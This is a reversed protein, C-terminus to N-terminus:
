WTKFSDDNSLGISVVGGDHQQDKPFVRQLPVPDFLSASSLSLSSGSSSTGRRGTWSPGEWVMLQEIDPVLIAQLTRAAEDMISTLGSDRRRHYQQNLDDPLSACQSWNDNIDHQGKGMFFEQQGDLHLGPLSHYERTLPQSFTADASDPERCDSTVPGDLWDIEDLDISLDFPAMTPYFSIVNPRGHQPDDHGACPKPALAVANSVAVAAITIRLFCGFLSVSMHYTM